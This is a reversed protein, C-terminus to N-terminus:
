GVTDNGFWLRIALAILLLAFGRRLLTGSFHVALRAGLWAGLFLGLALWLALAVDPRGLRGTRFYEWVGLIGVPLLLAALSIGAARQIGFGLMLILAPVLIAGGGIGFLGSLIGAVVGLILLWGSQESMM